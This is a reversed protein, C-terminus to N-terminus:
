SFGKESFAFRLVVFEVGDARSQLTASYDQVPNLDQHIEHYMWRVGPIAYGNFLKAVAEFADLNSQLLMLLEFRHVHFQPSDFGAYRLVCSPWIMADVLASFEQTGAEAQRDFVKLPDIGTDPISGISDAVLALLESALMM